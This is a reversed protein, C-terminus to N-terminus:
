LSYPGSGIVAVKKDTRYEVKTPQIWGEEFGKDVIVQEINKITVAPNNL